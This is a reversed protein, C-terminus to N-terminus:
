LHAVVTHAKRLVLGSLFYIKPSILAHLIGRSLSSESPKQPLKSVYLSECILCHYQNM